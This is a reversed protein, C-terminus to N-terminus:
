PVQGTLIRPRNPPCRPYAIPAIVQRMASLRLPNFRFSRSALNCALAVDGVGPVREEATEALMLRVRLRVSLGM